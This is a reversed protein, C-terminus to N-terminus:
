GSRRSSCAPTALSKPNTPNNSLNSLNSMKVRGKDVLAKLCLNISGVNSGVKKASTRLTSADAKYLMSQSDHRVRDLM